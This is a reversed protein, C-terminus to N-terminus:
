ADVEEVISAKLARDDFRPWGPTSGEAAHIATRIMTMAMPVADEPSPAEVNLSIEVEGTQMAGGIAPDEAGLHLLEEMVRDMSAEIGEPTDTAHLHITFAVKM